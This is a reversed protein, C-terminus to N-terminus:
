NNLVETGSNTWWCFYCKGKNIIRKASIVIV